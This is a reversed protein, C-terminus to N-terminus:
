VKSRFHVIDEIYNGLDTKEDKSHFWFSGTM